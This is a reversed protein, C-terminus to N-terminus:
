VSFDSLFPRALYPLVLFIPRPKPQWYPESSVQHLMLGEKAGVSPPHPLQSVERITSQGRDSEQRTLPPLLPVLDQIETDM